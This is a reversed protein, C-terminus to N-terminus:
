KNRLELNNILKDINKIVDKNGIPCIHWVADRLKILEKRDLLELFEFLKDETVKEYEFKTNNKSTSMSVEEEM